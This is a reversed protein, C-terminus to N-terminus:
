GPRGSLKNSLYMGVAFCTYMFCNLGNNFISHLLIRAQSKEAVLFNYVGALFFSGTNFVILGLCIWALPHKIISIGNLPELNLLLNASLLCYLISVMSNQISPFAFLSKYFLSTIMVCAGAFLGISILMIHKMAKATMYHRFFYAMLTYDIPILIHYAPFPNVALLEARYFAVAEALFNAAMAWKFYVMGRDHASTFINVIFCVSLFTLYIHYM